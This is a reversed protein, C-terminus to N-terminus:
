RSWPSEPRCSREERGWREGPLVGARTAFRTSRIRLSSRIPRSSIAVLAPDAGCCHRPDDGPGAQCRQMLEVRDGPDPDPGRTAGAVAVLASRRSIEDVD